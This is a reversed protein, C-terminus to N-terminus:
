SGRPKRRSDIEDIQRKIKALLADREAQSMKVASLQLQKRAVEPDNPHAV